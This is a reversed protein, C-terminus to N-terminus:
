ARPPITSLSGESCLLPLLEEWTRVVCVKHLAHSFKGIEKATGDFLYLHPVDNLYSLVELRDDIFHSASIETCIGAKEQRTRCFRLSQEKVGTLEHFQHHGLWKRTKKEVEEGCKSVLFTNFGASVAAAICEFSGPVALSNLFNGGFFSTDTKDNTRSIIVGGIDVGLVRERVKM